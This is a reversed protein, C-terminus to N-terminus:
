GASASSTAPDSGITWYVRQGPPVTLLPTTIRGSAGIPDALLRVTGNAMVAGAPITLMSKSLGNAQGLLWRQGTSILYINMDSFNQNDIQVPISVRDSQPAPEAAPSRSAGCAASLTLLGIMGARFKWM